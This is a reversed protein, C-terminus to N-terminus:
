EGARRERAGIQGSTHFIVICHFSRYLSFYWTLPMKQRQLTTAPTSATAHHARQVPVHPSEPVILRQPDLAVDKPFRSNVFLTWKYSLHLVSINITSAYNNSLFSVPTGSWSLDTSNDGKSTTTHDTEYTSSDDTDGSPIAEQFCYNTVLFLCVPNITVIFPTLM